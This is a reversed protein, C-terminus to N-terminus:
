AASDQRTCALMHQHNLTLSMGATADLAVMTACMGKIGPQMVHTSKGLALVQM